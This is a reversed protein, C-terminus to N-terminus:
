SSVHWIAEFQSKYNAPTIPLHPASDNTSDFIQLPTIDDTVPKHTEFYRAVLDVELWGQVESSTAINMAMTGSKLQQYTNESAIAATIKPNLNAAKLAPQVGVATDGYSFFLYKIKPDSQMASVVLNPLGKGIDTLQANVTKVTCKPCEAAMEDTFGKDEAILTNFAPLTVIAVHTNAGSDKIIWDAGIQGETRLFNEGLSVGSVGGAAMGTPTAPVGGVFVPIHAKGAQKLASSYVSPDQGSLVIADPHRNVAELLASSLSAPDGPYGITSTSWGLTKAGAAVNKGNQVDTPAASNALYILKKGAAPKQTLPKLDIKAEGKFQDVRQSVTASVGGAAQASTPAAAASTAATSPPPAAPSSSGSKNGSSSCGALLAAACLAGVGLIATRQGTLVTM